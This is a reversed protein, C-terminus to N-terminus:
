LQQPPDLTPRPKAFFEWGEPVFHDPDGLRQQIPLHMAPGPTHM